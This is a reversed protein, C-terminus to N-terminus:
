CSRTFFARVALPLLFMATGAAFVAAVAGIGILRATRTGNLPRSGM